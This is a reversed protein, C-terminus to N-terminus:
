PPIPPSPFFEELIIGTNLFDQIVLLSPDGAALLGGLQDVIRSALWPSGIIAPPPSPHFLSPASTTITGVQDWLNSGGPFAPVVDDGTAAEVEARSNFTAQQVSWNFIAYAHFTLWPQFMDPASGFIVFPRRPPGAPTFSLTSIFALRQNAENVFWAPPTPSSSTTTGVSDQRFFWRVFEARVRWRERVNPPDVPDPVSITPPEEVLTEPILELIPQGGNNIYRMVAGGVRRQLGTFGRGSLQHQSQAFDYFRQLEGGMNEVVSRRAAPDEVGRVRVPAIPM